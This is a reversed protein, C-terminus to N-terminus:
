PSYFFSTSLPAEWDDQLWPKKPHYVGVTTYVDVQHWVNEELDVVDSLFIYPCNASAMIVTDNAFATGIGGHTYIGGNHAYGIIELHYGYNYKLDINWDNIITFGHYSWIQNPSDDNFSCFAMVCVDSTLNQRSGSHIVFGDSGIFLEAPSDTPQTFTAAISFFVALTLMLFRKM